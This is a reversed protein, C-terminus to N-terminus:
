ALKWLRTQEAGALALAEILEQVTVVAETNDALVWTTTEQGVGTLALIARSMRSQATENGDFARGTRTEVVIAKVAADRLAKFAARQAADSLPDAPDPTNGATLWAQYAIFDPNETCWPQNTPVNTDGDRIVFNERTLKYTTM